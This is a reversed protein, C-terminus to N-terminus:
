GACPDGGGARLSAEEGSEEAEPPRRRNWIWGAAGAAILLLSVWQALTLGAIVTGGMRFFEVWFRGISYVVLYLWLEDGRRASRRGRYWFLLAAGAADWLSEYLFTPHYFAVNEYGPVRHEPAIYMKWPLSTPYGYLEQNFFNGWRGIAQGLLVSPMAVDLMGWLGVRGPLRRSFLWAALVGAVLAGHISLGGQWTALADLPHQAYYGLNQVVFGIRAGIFGAVAVVVAFNVLTDADVGLRAAYGRALYYGPIFSGAILLGYWRVALPGIQVLIPSVSATGAFIPRLWLFLAAAVVVGAAAWLAAPLGRREEGPPGARQEKAAEEERM